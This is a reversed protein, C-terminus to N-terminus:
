SSIIGGQKDLLSEMLEPSCCAADAVTSLIEKIEGDDRIFADLGQKIVEDLLEWVQEVHKSELAREIEWQLLTAVWVNRIESIESEHTSDEETKPLIKERANLLVPDFNIIPQKGLFLLNLLHDRMINSYHDRKQKLQIAEERRGEHSLQEMVELLTERLEIVEILSKLGKLEEL